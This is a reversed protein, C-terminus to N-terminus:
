LFGDAGDTSARARKVPAAKCCHAASCSNGRSGGVFMLLIALWFFALAYSAKSFFAAAGDSESSAAGLGRSAAAQLFGSEISLGHAVLLLQRVVGGYASPAGGLQDDGLQDAGLRYGSQVHGQVCSALWFSLIIESGLRSRSFFSSRCGVLIRPLLEWAQAL